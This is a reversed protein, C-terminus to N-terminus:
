KSVDGEAFLAFDFIPPLYELPRVVKVRRTVNGVTAEGEITYSQSPFVNKVASVNNSTGSSTVALAISALNYIPKIRLMLTGRQLTISKKYIYNKNLIQCSPSCIESPDFGNDGNPPVRTGPNFAYKIFNFNIDGGEDEDYVETVELSAPLGFEVTSAKDVWYITVVAAALDVPPNSNPDSTRVEIVDDQEVPRAAALTSSAESKEVNVTYGVDGVQGSIPGSAVLFGLDQSLAYEVGAEAAAYARESQESQTTLRVDTISRTAVALGITLAVVMIMLVIILVQGARAKQKTIM